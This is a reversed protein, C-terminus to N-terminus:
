YSGETVETHHGAMFAAMHSSPEDIIVAASEDLSSRMVPLLPGCDAKLLEEGGQRNAM